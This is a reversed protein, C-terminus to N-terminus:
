KKQCPVAKIEGDRGEGERLDPKEYSVSLLDLGSGCGAATQCWLRHTVPPSQGLPHGERREEM